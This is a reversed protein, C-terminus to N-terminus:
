TRKNKGTQSLSTIANLISETFTFQQLVHQKKQTHPPIGHSFYYTKECQVSLTYELLSKSPQKDTKFIHICNSKYISDFIIQVKM